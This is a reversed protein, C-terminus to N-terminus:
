EVVAIECVVLNAGAVEDGAVVDTEVVQRVVECRPASIRGAMGQHERGEYVDQITNLVTRWPPDHRISAAPRVRGSDGASRRGLGATTAEDGQEDREVDPKAVYESHFQVLPREQEDAGVLMADCSGACGKELRRATTWARMDQQGKSQCGGSM